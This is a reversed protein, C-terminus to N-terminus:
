NETEETGQVDASEVVTEKGNIDPHARGALSAIGVAISICVLGVLQWLSPIQRLLVAGILASTAPLLATFLAFTAASVRKMAMAELSYPFVTSLFALAIVAVLVKRDSFAVMAGPALIPASVLASFACGLSLNTMASSSSAAKQGLVIYGAWSAAAGMVWALGPLTQPDNLDLGLGGIACVGCLAFFAAIRPAWGRGRFVAVAVPGLFELSVTAGLPIRSIAEYFCSNMCVLAIGFYFAGKLTARDLGRWPRVWACLVLAGVFGRWWAVSAPEVVSFAFVAVAAGSYQILASTVILVQAPIRNAIGALTRSSM